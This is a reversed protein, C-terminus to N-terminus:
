ESKWYKVAKCNFFFVQFFALAMTGLIIITCTRCFIGTEIKQKWPIQPIIELHESFHKTGDYSIKLDRTNEFPIAFSVFTTTWRFCDKFYIALRCHHKIFVNIKYSM